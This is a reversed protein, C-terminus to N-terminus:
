YSGIEGEKRELKEWELYAEPDSRPNFFSINMKINGLNGDEENRDRPNNRRNRRGHMVGRNRGM